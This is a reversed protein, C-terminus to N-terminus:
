DSMKANLSITYRPKNNIHIDLNTSYYGNQDSYCPIFIKWDNWGNEILILNFGGDEIPEITYDKFEEGKYFMELVSFDAWNSERCDQEHSFTISSGDDFLIKEDNWGQIRM